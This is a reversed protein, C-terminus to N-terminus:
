TNNHKMMQILFWNYHITSYIGYVKVYSYNNIFYTLVEVIDNGSEETSYYGYDEHEYFIIFDMDKM